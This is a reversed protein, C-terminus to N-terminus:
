RGTRGSPRRQSTLVHSAGGAKQQVGEPGPQQDQGDGDGTGNEQEGLSAPPPLRGQQRGRYRGARSRGATGASAPSSGPGRRGERARERPPRRRSRRSPTWSHARRPAPAAASGQSRGERGRPGPRVAEPGAAGQRQDQVEAQSKQRHKQAAERSQPHAAGPQGAAQEVGGTQEQEHKQPGGAPQDKGRGSHPPSRGRSRSRARGAAARSSSGSHRAMIRSETLHHCISYGRKLSWIGTRRRWSATSHPAKRTMWNMMEATISRSRGSSDM